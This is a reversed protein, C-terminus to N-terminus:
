VRDLLETEELRDDDPLHALAAVLQDHALSAPPGALPRLELGDRGDDPLRLVLIEESVSEQLIDVPDLEVRELLRGCVM